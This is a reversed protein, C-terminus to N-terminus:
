QAWRGPKYRSGVPLKIAEMLPWKQVIYRAMFTGYSVPSNLYNHLEKLTYFEGEYEVTRRDKTKNEKGTIWQCNEPSYGLEPKKRDLELEPSFGNNLAWNAFAEQGKLGRWEDCVFTGRLSRRQVMSKWRKLAAERLPNNM